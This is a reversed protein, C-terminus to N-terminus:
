QGPTTGPAPAAIPNAPAAANATSAAGEIPPNAKGAASADTGPATATGTTGAANTGAATTAGAAADAPAAGDAPAAADAAPVAPLPLNSGQANMYAIVNAREEANGLGAFSMKTGNAFKRPSTLWADMQKWDWTGGVAKLADSYAFGAHGAVPAGMTAWLNPGIGNAGGAAIAHCASCKKFVQEGKALDASALLVEIPPGAAAGGEGEVVGEPVYGMTEPRSSNFYLGSALTLGLAAIGAGLVWGFITNKRDDM